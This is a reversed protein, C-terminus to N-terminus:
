KMNRLGEALVKCGFSGRANSNTRATVLCNQEAIRTKGKQLQFNWNRLKSRSTAVHYERKVSITCSDMILFFRSKSSEIQNPLDLILLLDIQRLRLHIQTVVIEYKITRQHELCTRSGNGAMNM